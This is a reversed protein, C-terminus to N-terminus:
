VSADPDRAVDFLSEVEQIESPDPLQRLRRGIRYVPVWFLLLIGLTWAAGWWGLDLGTWDLISLWVSTAFVISACSWAFQAHPSLLGELVVTHLRVANRLFLVWGAAAVLLCAAQGLHGALGWDRYVMAMPLTTFFVSFGAVLTRRRLLRQTRKLADVGLAAPPTVCVAPVNGMIAAEKRLDADDALASEVLARTDGSAEGAVYVPLLDRIVEKSTNM